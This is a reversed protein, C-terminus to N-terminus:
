CDITCILVQPKDVEVSDGAKKSKSKKPVNFNPPLPPAKPIGEDNMQPNTTSQVVLEVLNTSGKKQMMQHFRVFFFFVSNIFYTNNKAKQKQSPFFFFDQQNTFNLKM